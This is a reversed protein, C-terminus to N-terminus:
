LGFSTVHTSAPTQFAVHDKKQFWITALRTDAALKVYSMTTTDTNIYTTLLAESHVHNTEHVRQLQM